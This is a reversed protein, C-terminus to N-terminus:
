DHDHSELISTLLMHPVTLAALGIFIIRQIATEMEVSGAFALTAPICILLTAATYGAAMWAAQNRNASARWIQLFHRPSHLACFYLLFFVLPPLMMATIALIALELANWFQRRLLFIAAAASIIALWLPALWHQTQAIARATEGSLLVYIEAVATAHMFSPLSLLAAGIAIRALHQRNLWDGAFHNASYLLFVLLATAPAIFWIALVFGAAGLYAGHFLAIARWDGLLGARQAL